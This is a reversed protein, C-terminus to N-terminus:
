SLFEEFVKISMWYVFSSYFRDRESLGQWWSRIRGRIDSPTCVFNMTKREISCWLCFRVDGPRLDCRSCPLPISWAWYKNYTWNNESQRLNNTTCVGNWKEKEKPQMHCYDGSLCSLSLSLYLLGLSFFSSLSLLSSCYCCYCDPCVLLCADNKGDFWFCLFLCLIIPCLWCFM